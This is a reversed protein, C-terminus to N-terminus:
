RGFLLGIEFVPLNQYTESLRLAFTDVTLTERGQTLKYIETRQEDLQNIRRASQNAHRQAQFAASRYVNAAHGLNLHRCPDIEYMEQYLDAKQHLATARDMSAVYANSTVLLNETTQNYHGVARDLAKKEEFPGHRLVITQNTVPGDPTEQIGAQAIWAFGTNTIENSIVRVWARLPRVPQPVQQEAPLTANTANIAATNTWWHFLPYLNVRQANVIRIPDKFDQAEVPLNLLLVPLVTKIIQIM